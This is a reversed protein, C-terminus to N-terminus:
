FYKTALLWLRAHRSKGESDKGNADVGPNTGLPQAAMVRVSFDNAKAWQVGVGVSSLTYRNRASTNASNWGAWTNKNVQVGGADAFAFLSVTDKIQKRLEVNLLWGNDGAAETVAYGRVGMPGGLVFKESADLNKDAFQASLGASLSVTNSLAQLRGVNATLKNYHGKRKTTLADAARDGDNRLTLYGATLGAGFTTVGSQDPADGFFNLSTVKARRNNLEVGSAENKFVKDDFTLQATLNLDRKRAIPYLGKLGWGHAEGKTDPLVAGNVVRYDLGFANVGVKAGKSGVPLLYEGRLYQMGESVSASALFQDGLKFPSNLVLNAGLRERGTAYNGANDLSVSGAVFPVPALKVKVKTSGPQDGATLLASAQAGALENLRATEEAVQDLNVVGGTVEGEYFSRAREASVRVGDASEVDLGAFKAEIVAIEVVGDAMAQQPLYARALVGQARYHEAVKRAAASLDAFSQEKGSFPAVLGQLTAEDVLTAGSFRFGKVAVRRSDQAVPAAAQDASVEGAPKAPLQPAARQVDRLQTGADTQALAGGTWVLCSALVCSSIPRISSM